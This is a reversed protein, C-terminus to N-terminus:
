KNRDEEIKKMLMKCNKFYQDKLEKILNIGLYKIIKSVIIFLIIKNM